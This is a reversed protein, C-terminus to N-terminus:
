LLLVNNNQPTSYVYPCYHHALEITPTTVVELAFIVL